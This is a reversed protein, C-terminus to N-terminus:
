VHEGPHAAKITVTAPGLVAPGSLRWPRPALVVRNRRVSRRKRGAPLIRRVGCADMVVRAVSRSSRSVDRMAARAPCRMGCIPIGTFRFIKRNRDPCGLDAQFREPIRCSRAVRRVSEPSERDNRVWRGVRSRSDPTLSVAVGCPLMACVRSPAAREAGLQGM